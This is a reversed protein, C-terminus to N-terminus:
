DKDFANFNANVFEIFEVDSSQIAYNIVYKREADTAYQAFRKLIWENKRTLAVGLTSIKNGPQYSLDAGRWLLINIRARSLATTNTRASVYWLDKDPQFIFTPLGVFIATSFIIVIWFNASLFLKKQSFRKM